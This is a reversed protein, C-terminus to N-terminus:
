FYASNVTTRMNSVDNWLEAGTTRIQAKQRAVELTTVTYDDYENFLKNNSKSFRAEERSPKRYKELESKLNISPFKDELYQKYDIFGQKRFRTVKVGGVDARMFQGMQTIIEEQLERQVKELAELEDELAKINKQQKCWEDSTVEWRFLPGGREPVFWDKAPDTKPPVKLQVLEWFDKAAQVIVDKRQQTLVISFDLDSGDDKYFILSRRNSGSVVCQTHIQAEYMKYTESHTGNLVLENFVKDSPAKFEYSDHNSDLGDFSARLVDWDIFEGCMPMLIDGYRKEALQRITDELMHGRKVHPNNSIDPSNILGVKEAWLMWRTKHPSLGLIIPMDSATIGQSRWELWEKSGQKLDVSIMRAGSSAALIVKKSIPM